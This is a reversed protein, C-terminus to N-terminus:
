GHRKKALALRVAEEVTKLPVNARAAAERCHEFEPM